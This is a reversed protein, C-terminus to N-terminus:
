LKKSKRSKSSKRSKKSGGGSKAKKAKNKKCEAVKAQIDAPAKSVSTFVSVPTGCSPCVGKAMVGCNKEMVVFKLNKIVVKKKEKMCTAQM